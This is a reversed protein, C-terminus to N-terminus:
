FPFLRPLLLLSVALVILAIPAGQRFYDGFRYGGPSMVLLNAAHGVPSLVAAALAYAIGLMLPYPSVGLEAAATLAVPSILVVVVVGPMFQTALMTLIMLGAMVATPGYGGIVALLAHALWAAAGTQALATGLPLMAAILFISRWDIARYLEDMTLCGTLVMLVCGTLAAISIPADLAAAALVVGLMILLAPLAKHPRPPEQLEMKLVVFDRDRAILAFRELPGYCLLGDGFNLPMEGLGTRYARHGRWIALVSVGYKERFRLSALTRGALTTHPSLMVEVFQSTGDNLEELSVDVRREVQLGTLGRLLEIDSPRGEVILRDGAELRLSPQPTERRGDAREVRLVAVGYHAGLRSEELTQGALASGEPIRLALLREEVRYTQAQKVDLLRYDPQDALAALCEHAGLLLLREGPKLPIHQLHTRRVQAGNQVALVNLGYRGRFNVAAPSQGSFPSDATVRLEALGNQADILDAATLREPEVLIPPHAALAEIRDLRGLILLRDGGELRVNPDVAVRRGDQRRISLVNLGLILGIRSETLTLGALPSQPPVLLWALREELGYLAELESGNGPDGAALPGISERVPLLRRGLLAMYAIGGLVILLGGPTFDFMGLPAYGAERLADRVLLNTSTGILLLLGGLLSGYAMPMLLQSPARRTRRAIEMTLPLFMAAVAINNMFASLVAATTALVAILRADSRGALRVVQRGLADSVGTRSLGASLILMAWITIVAPNSFGALAQQPDVLGTIALTALTLLAALDVRLWGTALVVVVGALVAFALAIEPTM